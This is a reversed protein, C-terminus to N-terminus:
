HGATALTLAMAQVAHKSKVAFDTGGQPFDELHVHSECRYSNRQLSRLGALAEGSGLLTGNRISALM